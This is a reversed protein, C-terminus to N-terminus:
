VPRRGHQGDAYFFRRSLGRDSQLDLGCDPRPCHRRCLGMHVNLAVVGKGSFFIGASLVAPMQNRKRNKIRFNM